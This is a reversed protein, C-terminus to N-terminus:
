AEFQRPQSPRNRRIEATRRAIRPLLDIVDAPRKRLERSDAALGAAYGIRVLQQEAPSRGELARGLAGPIAPKKRRSM